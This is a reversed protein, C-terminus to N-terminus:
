VLLDQGILTRPRVMHSSQSIQGTPRVPQSFNDNDNGLGIPLRSGSTTTVLVCLSWPCMCGDCIHLRSHLRYFNSHGLWQLGSVVIWLDCFTWKKHLLWLLTSNQTLWNFAIEFNRKFQFTSSQFFISLLAWATHLCTCFYVKWRCVQFNWWSM